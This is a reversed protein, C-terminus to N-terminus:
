GEDGRLTCVQLRSLARAMEGQCLLLILRGWKHFHQQALRNQEATNGEVIPLRKLLFAVVMLKARDMDANNAMRLTKLELVIDEIQINEDVGRKLTQYAERGFEDKWGLSTWPDTTADGRSSVGGSAVSEDNDSEGETGSDEV